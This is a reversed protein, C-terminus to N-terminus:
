TPITLYRPRVYLRASIDDIASDAGARPDNRCAKVLVECTRGERGSPPVLLLDGTHKSVPQWFGGASDERIVGDHRFQLSQSAFMAADLTPVWALFNDYSRNGASAAPHWDYLGCYGDDLAGGTALAADYGSAVLALDGGVQGGHAYFSGGASVTLRLQFPLSGTLNSANLGGALTTVVGAVVKAVIVYWTRWTSSYAVYAVLFNDKDVARAIVGQYAGSPLSDDNNVDVQVAANTMASTGSAYLWRGYRADTVADSAASRVAAGASVAFDDAEYASAPATWTGGVPLTDGVLGSAYTGSSFDDQAIYAPAAALVTGASAEAYFEDIPAFFLHDIFVRDSYVTSKALVRGEWFQSGTLVPPVNVVGLDVLLWQDEVPSGDSLRTDTLYTAANRQPRRFDGVAWELCVGVTGTNASSAQVRAFARYGGTHQLHSGAGTAQTSLVAEWETSLNDVDVVNSGSGSAAGTYGTSATAASGGLPTRGEAQYFLACDADASYWRSRLAALVWSQSDGDDEDVVLRGLAPVDGPVSAETFILVPLTAEVNDGLDQEAGFGLPLCTFTLTAHAVQRTMYRKDLTVNFSADLVTFTVVTGAPTTVELEGGERHQKAVAAQLAQVRDELQADSSGTVRLTTTIQRNAYRSDVLQDGDVGVAGAWQAVMPPEPAELGLLFYASNDAINLVTETPDLRLGFAGM